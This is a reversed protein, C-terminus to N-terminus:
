PWTKAKERSPVVTAPMALTKQAWDEAHAVTQGPDALDDVLGWDLASEREITVANTTM